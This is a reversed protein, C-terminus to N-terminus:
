GNLVYRRCLCFVYELKSRFASTLGIYMSNRKAMSRDKDGGYWTFMNQLSTKLNNVTYTLGKVPDDGLDAYLSTPDYSAYSAQRIGFRYMPDDQHERIWQDLM